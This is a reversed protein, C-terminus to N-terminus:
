RTEPGGYGAVPKGDDGLKGATWLLGNALLHFYVDTSATKVDHGLTTGFVRGKGLAHTWAVVQDDGKPDKGKLLAVSSDADPFPFKVNHYLEDGETAWSEPWFKVIPSPPDAVVVAFPGYKEHYNSYMGCCEGWSSDKKGKWFCHMACHIVMTPKGEGTVRKANAILEDDYVDAYCMDYVIADFGEGLKPDKMIAVLQAAKDCMKVTFAVNAHKAMGETLLPALKHYDHSTGGTIFLGKIPEAASLAAAFGIAAVLLALPRLM